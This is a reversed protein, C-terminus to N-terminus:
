KLPTSVALDNVRVVVRQEESGSGKEIDTYEFTGRCVANNKCVIALAEMNDPKEVDAGELGCAEKAAGGAMEVTVKGKSSSTREWSELEARGKISHFELSGWPSMSMRMEDEATSGDAHLDINGFGWGALGVFVQTDDNLDDKGNGTSFSAPLNGSMEPLEITERFDKEYANSSPSGFDLDTAIGGSQGDVHKAAVYQPDYVGIVYHIKLTDVPLYAEDTLINDAHKIFYLFAQIAAGMWQGNLLYYLTTTIEQPQVSEAGYFAGHGMVALSMKNEDLTLATQTIDSYDEADNLLYAKVGMAGVYTNVKNDTNADFGRLVVFAKKGAIDAATFGHKKLDVTEVGGCWGQDCDDISLEGEIFRLFKENAAVGTYYTRYEYDHSTLNRFNSHAMFDIGLSHETVNGDWDTSLSEYVVTDDLHSAIESYPMNYEFTLDCETDWKFYLGNWFVTGDWDINRMISPRASPSISTNALNIKSAASSRPGGFVSGLIVIAVYACQRSTM